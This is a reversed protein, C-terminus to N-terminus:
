TQHESANTACKKENDSLAHQARTARVRLFDACIERPMLTLIFFCESSRESTNTLPLIQEITRLYGIANQHTNACKKM